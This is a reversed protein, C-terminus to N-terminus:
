ADLFFMDIFVFRNFVISTFYFFGFIPRSSSSFQLFTYAGCQSLMPFIDPRSRLISGLLPHSTDMFTHSFVHSTVNLVM